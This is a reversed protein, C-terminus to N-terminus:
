NSAPVSGLIENLKAAAEGVRPGPRTFLNEDVAIARVNMTGARELLARVQEPAVSHSPYLLIEPPNAVFSELSYQPWGNVEVANKAGCLAFLDGGFTNNGAVYLPDPWVALMVRPPHSRTRRARALSADLANIARRSDVGLADGITKMSRAIDALRENTVVILPIHVSALARGLNPPLGAANAIVLDPRAAVIKELNPQIGGVHPLQRGPTAAVIADASFDDTAVVRNAAGLALVMETVNPALTVIRQPTQKPAPERASCAAFLAILALCFGRSRLRPEPLDLSRM